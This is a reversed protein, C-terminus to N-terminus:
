PARRISLLGFGYAKGPGIGTQLAVRFQHADQVVLLGEFVAGALTVPSNGRGGASAVETIRVTDQDFTFGAEVARRALWALRAEDGRVPVRRGNRKKGDIATKTDIKRTTNACLRFRFSDGSSISAQKTAISRVAPNEGVASFAM